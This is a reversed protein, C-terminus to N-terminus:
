GFLYGTVSGTELGADNLVPKMWFRNWEFGTEDLGTEDWVSDFGTEDLGTEDWASNENSVPKRFFLFM